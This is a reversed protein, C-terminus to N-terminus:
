TMEQAFKDSVFAIVSNDQRRSRLRWSSRLHRFGKIGFQELVQSVQAVGSEKSPFPVSIM